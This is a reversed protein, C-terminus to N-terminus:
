SSEEDQNSNDTPQQPDQQDNPLRAYGYAILLNAVTQSGYEDMLAVLQDIDSTRISGRYPAPRTEMVQANEANYDLMFQSLATIFDAKYRAKRILEQGLGYRVDYKRDGQKKRYQATVTSQRIAYAIRQFGESALIPAIPQETSMILREIFDTSFQRAYQNRERKGMLYAPFANTFQFFARLDDGSLFDRLYQLLTFADSHSEDFQQIFTELEKLLNIYLTADDFDQVTVWGPLAIFAMNMTAVANGMDKYFATYFGSVLSNRINLRHRFRALQSSKTSMLHSLLARTYRLVALCDFRTATETVQMSQIFDGMVQTHTQWTLERPALVFTKRDKAGRVLRTLAGEYFGVAKLWEVLWFQDVNGVALGDAKSRNQGKGSDPNYLQQATSYPKIGWGRVKDLQRWREAIAEVPNPTSAFLDLLIALVEPDASVTYWDLMLSNYGPLAAPNIARLVDWRAPPPPAEVKHRRAEFYETVIAKDAEYDYAAIEDPLKTKLTRIPQQPTRPALLGERQIPTKPSIKYYHGKDEIDLRYGQDSAASLADSLVKMLGYATLLGAFPNLGKDVYFAEYTTM